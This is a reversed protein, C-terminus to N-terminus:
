VTQYTATIVNPILSFMFYASIPLGIFATASLVTLGVEGQVLIRVLTASLIGSVLIPLPAWWIVHWAYYLLYTIATLTGLLSSINLALTFSQSSSRFTRIHLQQYFLFISFVCFFGISPWSLLNM